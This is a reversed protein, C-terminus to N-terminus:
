GRSRHARAARRLGAHLHRPRLPRVHRRRAGRRRPLRRRDGAPRLPEHGAHAHQQPHDRARHRQARGHEFIKIPPIRLGEDWISIADSSRALRPRPRRRGDHPRVHELLRRPRGRPLDARDRALRQLALDVGQLPLPRQPPDRRGRRHRRRVLRDGRPHLLRVPRRGDDRARERDDPVRRAARPHDPEDRRPPRGRGDRLAREQARERDPRPHRPRATRADTSMRPDILLNLHDDVRAVHGPLVLTTADYQTISPRAPSSWAPCCCSATTSRRRGQAARRHAGGLRRHRRAGARAPAAEPRPRDRPRPPQRARRCRAPRLRLPARPHRPLPRRADDLSTPARRRRRPDRLGPPLLAHRRPLRGRAADEPVNEGTLWARALRGLGTSREM